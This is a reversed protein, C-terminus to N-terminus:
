PRKCGEESVSIQSPSQLTQCDPSCIGNNLLNRSASPSLRGSISAGPCRTVASSASSASEIKQIASNNMQFQWIKDPDPWSAIKVECSSYPQNVLRSRRTVSDTRSFSSCASALGAGADHPRLIGEALQARM